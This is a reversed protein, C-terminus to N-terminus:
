KKWRNLLPIKKTFMNAFLAMPFGMRKIKEKVFDQMQQATWDPQKFSGNEFCYACYTKSISGDANSGGGNPSKKLPMGCSQCNTFKQEM